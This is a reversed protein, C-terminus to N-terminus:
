MLIESFHLEEIGIYNIESGDYNKRRTKGKTNSNNEDDSDASDTDSDTKAPPAMPAAKTITRTTTPATAPKPKMLVVRQNKGSGVVATAGATIVGAAGLPSRIIRVKRQAPAGASTPTAIAATLGAPLKPTEAPAPAAAQVSKISKKGAKIAQFEKQNIKVFSDKLFKIKLRHAAECVSEVLHRPIKAEGQYAFDVIISLIEPEMEPLSIHVAPAEEVSPQVALIEAMLDSIAAWVVRHCAKTGGNACLFYLDADKESSLASKLTTGFDGFHQFNKVLLREEAAVAAEAPAATAAM